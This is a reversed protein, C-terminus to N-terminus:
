EEWWAQPSATDYFPCSGDGSLEHTCMEGELCGKCPKVTENELAPTPVHNRVVKELWQGPIEAKIVEFGEIADTPDIEFRRGNVAAVVSLGCTPITFGNVIMHLGDFALEDKEDTASARSGIGPHSHISGVVRRREDNEYEVHLGGVKQKPIYLSWAEKPDFCLLVIGETRHEEYVRGLFALTQEFLAMPIKPATLTFTEEVPDFEPNTAVKVLAEFIGNKKHLYHGERGVLFSFSGKASGEGNGNTQNAKV